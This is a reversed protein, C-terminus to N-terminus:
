NVWVSITCATNCWLNIFSSNAQANGLASTPPSWINTDVQINTPIFLTPTRSLKHAVLNDQGAVLVVGTLMNGGVLPSAELPRLAEASYDQLMQLNKDPTVIRKLPM